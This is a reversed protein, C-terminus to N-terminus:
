VERDIVKYIQEFLKEHQAENAPVLPLKVDGPDEWLSKLADKILIPNTVAFLAKFIPYLKFHLERAFKNNGAYFADIMDGMERGIIHSAVSVVGVAGCALMPLTMSDDGSYIKFDPYKSMRAALESTQDINGVADKVYKIHPFDKHLREIVESSINVNTRGPINYLMIPIDCKEAVTAFHRYLGEQPPKNYYPAVLLIADAGAKISNQSAILTKETSNTGAGMILPAKIEPDQKLTELLKIKETDSLTPSEGTTGAVLLADSRERLLKKALRRFKDYDPTGDPKFTTIMATIIKVSSNM